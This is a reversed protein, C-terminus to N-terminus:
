RLRSSGLAKKLAAGYEMKYDFLAKQGALDFIGIGLEKKCRDQVYKLNSVQMDILKQISRVDNHSISDLYAKAAVDIYFYSRQRAAETLAAEEKEDVGEILMYEFVTMGAAKDAARLGPLLGDYVARFEAEIRDYERAYAPESSRKGSAFTGDREALGHQQNLATHKANRDNVLEWSRKTYIRKREFHDLLFEPRVNRHSM